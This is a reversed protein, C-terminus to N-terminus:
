SWLHFIELKKTKDVDTDDNKQFRRYILSLKKFTTKLSNCGM